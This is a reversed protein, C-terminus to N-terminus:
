LQLLFYRIKGSCYCFRLYTYQIKDLNRLKKNFDIYKLIKPDIRKFFWFFKGVKFNWVIKLFFEWKELNNSSHFQLYFVKFQDVSFTIYEIIVVEFSLYSRHDLLIHSLKVLFNYIIKLHWYIFIQIQFDKSRIWYISNKQIFRFKM